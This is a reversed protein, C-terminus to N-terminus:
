TKLCIGKIRSEVIKSNIKNKYTAVLPILVSRPLIATGLSFFWFKLNFLNKWRYKVLLFIERLLYTYKGAYNKVQVLGVYSVAVFTKICKNKIDKLEKLLIKVETKPDYPFVQVRIKEPIDELVGSDDAFNWMGIYLLKARDSIKSIEEDLWFEPDILRKRAM